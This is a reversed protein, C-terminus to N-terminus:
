SMKNICTVCDEGARSENDWAALGRQVITAVDDNSVVDWLGDTALILIDDATVNENEIDLV